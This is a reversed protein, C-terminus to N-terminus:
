DNSGFYEGYTYVKILNLKKKDDEMSLKDKELKLVDDDLCGVDEEEDIDVVTFNDRDNSRKLHSLYERTEEDNAYCNIKGAVVVYISNIRSKPALIVKDPDVFVEELYEDGIRQLEKDTFGEFIELKKLIQILAGMQTNKYHKLGSRLRPGIDKFEVKLSNYDNRSFAYLICFEYANVDFTRKSNSM